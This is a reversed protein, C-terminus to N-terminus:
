YNQREEEKGSMLMSGLLGAGVIPAASYLSQGQTRVKGKM